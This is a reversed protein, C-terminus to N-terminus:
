SLFHLNQESYFLFSSSFIKSIIVDRSWLLWGHTVFSAEAVTRVDGDVVLMQLTSFQMKTIFSNQQKM